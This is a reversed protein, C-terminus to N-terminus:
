GHLCGGDIDEAAAAELQPEARAREMVPDRAQAARAAGGALGALRQALRYVDDPGGPGPM